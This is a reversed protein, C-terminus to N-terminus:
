LSTTPIAQQTRAAAQKVRTHQAACPKERFVSLCRTRSSASLSRFMSKSCSISWIRFTASEGQLM